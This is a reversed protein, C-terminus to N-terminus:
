VSPPRTAAATHHTKRKVSVLMEWLENENDTNQETTATVDDSQQDRSKNSITITADDNPDENDM